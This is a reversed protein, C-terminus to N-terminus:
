AYSAGEWVVQLVALKSGQPVQVSTLNFGPDAAAFLAVWEDMEREKANMMQKM